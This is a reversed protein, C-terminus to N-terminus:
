NWAAHASFTKHGSIFANNTFASWLCNQANQISIQWSLMEPRSSTRLKRKVFEKIKYRKMATKRQVQKDENTHWNTKKLNRVDNEEGEEAASNLNMFERNRAGIGNDVIPKLNKVCQMVTAEINKESDLLAGKFSCSFSSGSM